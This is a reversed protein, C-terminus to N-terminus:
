PESTTVKIWRNQLLRHSSRFNGAENWANHHIHTFRPGLKTARAKRPHTALRVRIFYFCTIRSHLFARPKIFTFLISLLMGWSANSPRAAHFLLYLNTNHTRICLTNSFIKAYLVGIYFSEKYKHIRFLYSVDIKKDYGSTYQDKYPVKYIIKRGQTKLLLSYVSRTIFKIFWAYMERFLSDRSFNKSTSAVGNQGLILAGDNHM